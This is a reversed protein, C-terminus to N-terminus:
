TDRQQGGNNNLDFEGEFEEDKIIEPLMEAEDDNDYIDGEEEDDSAAFIDFNGPKSQFAGIKNSPQQQIPNQEAKESDDHDQLESLGNFNNSLGRIGKFTGISEFNPKNSSTKDINNNKDEKPLMTLANFNFAANELEFDNQGDDALQLSNM